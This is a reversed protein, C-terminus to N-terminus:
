LWTVIFKMLIRRLSHDVCCRCTFNFYLVSVLWEEGQHPSHCWWSSWMYTIYVLSHRRYGNINRNMMKSRLTQVREEDGMQITGLFTFFYKMFSDGIHQDRFIYFPAAVVRLNIWIRIIRKRNEADTTLDLSYMYLLRWGLDCPGLVHLIPM